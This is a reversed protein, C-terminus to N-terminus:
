GGSLDGDLPYTNPFSIASDVAYLNIRHIGSDLRQVVLALDHPEACLSTLLFFEVLPHSLSSLSGGRERREGEERGRRRRRRRRRRRPPPPRRRRRRRRRNTLNKKKQNSILSQSFNQVQLLLSM